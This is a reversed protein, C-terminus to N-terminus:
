VTLGRDPGSRLHNDPTADAQTVIHIVARKVVWAGISPCSDRGGIRGRRSEEERGSPVGRVEEDPATDVRAELRQPSPLKIVRPGTDPFCDGLSISRCWPKAGCTDPRAFLEDNPAAGICPFDSRYRLLTCG